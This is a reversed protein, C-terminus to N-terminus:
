ATLYATRDESWNEVKFTYKRTNGLNLIQQYVGPTGIPGVTLGPPLKAVIYIMRTMGPKNFGDQNSIERLNLSYRAPDRMQYTIQDGNAITYKTKRNIRVGFRSLVYSLDFPTCGRLNQAIETTAGGGIPLTQAENQAFLNQLTTYTSGLEEATHRVSIDYLDVELRALSDPAGNNTSANRLTLDLIGSKFIVKTSPGAALGTSPTTAANAIFGSINTLDNYWSTTSQLPFLAVSTVLQNGATTETSTIGVNFVVQQTGLDKESVALVKKNFARWRRRKKAPMRKRRYITKADYQETVGVGITKSRRRSGTTFARGARQRASTALRLSRRFRGNYSAFRNRAMQINRNLSQVLGRAGLRQATNRQLALINANPRFNSSIVSM